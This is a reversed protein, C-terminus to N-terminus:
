QNVNKKHKFSTNLAVIKRTHISEDQLEHIKIHQIQM